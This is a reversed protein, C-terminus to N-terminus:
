NDLEQFLGDVSNVTHLEKGNDADM